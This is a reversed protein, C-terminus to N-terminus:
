PHIFNGVVHYEKRGGNKSDQNEEGFNEEGRVWKIIKGVAEINFSSSIAEAKEKKWTINKGGSM